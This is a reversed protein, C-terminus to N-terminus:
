YLIGDELRIIRDCKAATKEDHTVIIVTNNLYKLQYLLDTINDATKSDLAGTPEDALIIDCESMLSRGVAIRQKQGGSLKEVSTKEYGKMGTKEMVAEAKRRASKKRKYMDPLMINDRCNLYPLLNYNQFVMNVRYRRVMEMQKRNQCNIYEGNLYYEGQWDDYCALINLLTTKGCGSEGTIAVVSGTEIKMSINKLVQRDGYSKSVNRLEIM